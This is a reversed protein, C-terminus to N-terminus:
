AYPNIRDFGHYCGEYIEFMVSVGASRLRDVFAITEDKFPELDGVFTIAPPLNTLDTARSPAAYAPIDTSTLDSLYLEWALKNMKTDWIPANNDKASANIMRDDLMPYLPMMFAIKVGLHDREYLALAITLGGGASEGGVIIQNENIDLESASNKMWLLAEHCDNLAAPYPYDLSLRYDPAVVVCNRKKILKSIVSTSLEPVGMAYGGGHLWLVGPANKTSSISSYVCIRLLSGDEQRNIFLEKYKINKSRRRYLWVIKQHLSKFKNVSAPKMILDFFLAPIRLQKDIMKIKIKM